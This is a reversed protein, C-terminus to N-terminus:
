CIKVLEDYTSAVCNLKVGTVQNSACGNEKCFERFLTALEDEGSKTLPDNIDFCTSDDRDEDTNYFFVEVEGCRHPHVDCDIEMGNKKLYQKVTM